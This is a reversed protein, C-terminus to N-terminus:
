QKNQLLIKAKESVMEEPDEALKKIAEIGRPDDFYELIEVVRMKNWMNNDNIITDLFMFATEPNLYFLMEICTRRIEEAPNDLNLTFIETLNYFEIQSVERLANGGEIELIEKFLDLLEKLNTPNQKIYNPLKSYFVKANEIFKTKINDDIEQDEGYIKLCVEIVEKDNFVTILNSAARKFRVDAEILTKLVANKIHEDFPVDLQFNDKLTNLTEIAAWATPGSLNKLDSLLKFFSEADGILGISEIMSFKTLEDVTDYKDMIFNLAENGGIKGLAEIITPGYLESVEYFSIIQPVATECKINGLAEICALVVNENETQRLVESIKSAPKLDGILGLIDIVFKKDDDDGKDIYGLMSDVVSLGKKLLVEGALNRISIDTSSVFPVVLEGIVPSDLNILAFSVADRVGKDPDALRGTLQKIVIEPVDNMFGISEASARRVSADADKLGEIAIKLEDSFNEM